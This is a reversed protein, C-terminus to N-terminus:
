LETRTRTRILHRERNKAAWGHLWTACGSGARGRVWIQGAPDIRPSRRHPDCGRLCRWQDTQRRSRCRLYPHEQCARRMPEVISASGGVCVCWLAEARVDHRKSSGMMGRQGYGRLRKPNPNPNVNGWGEETVIAWGIMGEVRSGKAAIATGTSCRPEIWHGQLPCAVEGGGEAWGRIADRPEERAM